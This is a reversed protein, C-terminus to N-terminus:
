WLGGKEPSGDGVDGSCHNGFTGNFAASSRNGGSHGPCLDRFSPPNSAFPVEQGHHWLSSTRFGAGEM